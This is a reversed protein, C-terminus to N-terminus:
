ASGGEDLGWQAQLDELRDRLAAAKEFELAEAAALMEAELLDALDRPSLARSTVETASFAARSPTGQSRNGAASTAQLIEQRSKTITRASPM